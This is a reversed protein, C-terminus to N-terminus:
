CGRSHDLENKVNMLLKLCGQYLMKEVGKENILNARFLALNKFYELWPMVMRLTESYRTRGDRIRYVRVAISIRPRLFLPLGFEVVQFDLIDVGGIQYDLIMLDLCHANDSPAQEKDLEPLSLLASLKDRLYAEYDVNWFRFPNIQAPPSGGSAIVVAGRYLKIPQKKAFLRQFM